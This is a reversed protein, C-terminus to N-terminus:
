DSLDNDSCPCYMNAYALACTFIDTCIWDFVKDVLDTWREWLSIVQTPLPVPLLKIFWM